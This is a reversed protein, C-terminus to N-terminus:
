LNGLPLNVFLPAIVVTLLGSVAISVSSMAGETEGLEFAKTTGIVHSASGLALGVAVPETIKCAKCLTPIAINGFIGTLIIAVVTISVIGGIEETLGIGIATTISKPLLSFYMEQELSFLMAGGWVALLSTCVGVSLSVFVALWNKKLINVQRHLSLALSVTAPTLLFSLLKTSSQYTSYEINCLLLVVICCVTAILIPNFCPANYKKKLWLGLGYALFTLVLGWYEFQEM